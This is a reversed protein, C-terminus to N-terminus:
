ESKTSTDVHNCLLYFWYISTTQPEKLVLRFNTHPVDFRKTPLIYDTITNLISTNKTDNFSSIGFLLMEYIRSDVGSLVNEDINFFISGEYSFIPCHLLYHVTTEIHKGCCCIPNLWDIFNHKFKHDRLHSLGLRLKTILKIGIPNWYTKNPTPKICQLIIKKFLTLSESSTISKDLNNWDSVTSLFFM